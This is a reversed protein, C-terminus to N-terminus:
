AMEKSIRSFVEETAGTGDIEVFKGSGKYYDVLPATNEEYTELRTSIVDIGDDKRQYVEGGCNDCKNEEKPPKNKTHYSAGCERCVRRGTLRDTLLQKPVDIFIAKELSLNLKSLIEGLTDAQAINRPFGDLIFSKGELRLLADELMSITVVDPVLEGKNIYSKAKQGLETDNKMNYRFLDGTSVHAMGMKEVLLASQTGKGAGPAGFLLINM